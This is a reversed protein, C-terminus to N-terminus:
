WKEEKEKEREKHKDREAERVRECVSGIKRKKKQVESELRDWKRGKGRKAEKQTYRNVREM